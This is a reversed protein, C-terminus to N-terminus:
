ARTAKCEPVRAHGQAKVGEQVWASTAGEHGSAKTDKCGPARKYRTGECGPLRASKHGSARTANCEPVMVGEYGKAGEHEQM